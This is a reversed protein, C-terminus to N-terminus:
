IPTEPTEPETQVERGILIMGAVTLCAGLGLWWSAPEAFLFVGAVTGLVVQSTMIMNARAVPTWQLGKTIALFSMLNLLGALGMLGLNTIPVAVLANLGRDVVYWPGLSVVGMGTVLFVVATAPTESTVNRRIVVVLIAYVIGVVCATCAAVIAWWWAFSSKEELNQDSVSDQDAVNQVTQTETPHSVTTTTSATSDKRIAKGARPSAIGLLVVSVMLLGIAFLTMRSVREGLFVRGLLATAVLNTGSMLPVGVALGIVSFVWLNPLNGCLQTMLGALALALLVRGGPLMSRGRLAHWALWPGVLVVAVLEKVLIVLVRDCDVTLQRLFANVTSYGLAALICLALGWFRTRRSESTSPLQSM